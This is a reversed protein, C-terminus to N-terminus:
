VCHHKVNKLGRAALDALIEDRYNPNMIVVLDRDSVAAVFNEVDLIPLRTSPMFRGAKMPNIDVAGKVRQLLEPAKRGLHHCFMVGKTAAGWVFISAGGAEVGISEIAEGVGPFLSDFGLSEWNGADSYADAFEAVALDGLQGIAYQYQDGFLLGQEQVTDFLSELSSPNFYNVHEYTVDFFAGNEWIWNSEPVEIYVPTDGFVQALMRLFEHPQPIHELVHRLVVIDADIRDDPNLFRKEIAPNDGEYADDYGRVEFHGDEIALELFDGKGCGVEVLRCGEPCSAKLIELVGRMHELFAPSVSQNNQYDDDYEIIAPDFAANEIFGNVQNERLHMVGFGEDDEPSKLPTNPIVPVSFSANNDNM